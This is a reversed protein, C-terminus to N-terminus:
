MFIAVVCTKGPPSQSIEWFNTGSKIAVRDMLQALTMSGADISIRVEPQSGSGYDDFVEQRMCHNAGLWAKIEPNDGLSMWIERVTKDHAGPYAMVVNALPLHAGHWFV